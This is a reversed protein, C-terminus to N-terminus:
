VWYVDKSLFKANSGTVYIDVNDFRLLGNLVAEFKDLLQIEDLLFYYMDTDVIKGKLYPSTIKPNQYEENDFDDFNLEIIHDEKVDESLLHNKFIKFLLFSKGCRRIGTIVKILGNHKREVLKNLYLDRKILM